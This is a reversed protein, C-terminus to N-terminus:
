QKVPASPPQYAPVHNKMRPVSRLYTFVAKLDEDSMKGYWMWPMPPMIPRSGGMHKGSRMAKVFTEETWVGMGTEEDPTLNAAYSIGWPGAFATNTATGAWMWADTLAPPPPLKMTEPHGSLMRSMDPEPGQPGMSLPTHCDNCGLITVLYEGRELPSKAPAATKSKGGGSPQSKVIQTALLVILATAVVAFSVSWWRFTGIKTATRAPDPNAKIM